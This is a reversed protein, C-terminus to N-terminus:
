FDERPPQGRIESALGELYRSKANAFGIPSLDGGFRKIPALATKIPALATLGRSSNGTVRLSIFYLCSHAGDRDSSCRKTVFTDKQKPYRSVLRQRRAQQQFRRYGVPMSGIVVGAPLTGHPRSVSKFISFEKCVKLSKTTSRDTREPSFSPVARPEAMPSYRPLEPSPVLVGAGWWCKRM